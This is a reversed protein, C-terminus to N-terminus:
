RGISGLEIASNFAGMTCVVFQDPGEQQFGAYRAVEPAIRFAPGVHNTVISEDSLFAVIGWTMDPELSIYWARDVRAKSTQHNNFELARGLFSAVFELGWAAIAHKETTRLVTSWIDPTDLTHTSLLLVVGPINFEKWVKAGWHDGSPLLAVSDSVGCEEESGVSVDNGRQTGKYDGQSGRRKGKWEVWLWEVIIYRYQLAHWRAEEESLESVGVQRGETRVQRSGGLDLWACSM